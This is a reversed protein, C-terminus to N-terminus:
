CLYARFPSFCPAARRTRRKRTEGPLPM